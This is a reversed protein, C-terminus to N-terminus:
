ALPIPKCKGHWAVGPIARSQHCPRLLAPGLPREGNSPRASGLVKSRSVLTLAGEDSWCTDWTGWSEKGREFQMANCHVARAHRAVNLPRATKDGLGVIAVILLNRKGYRVTGYWTHTYREVSVPGCDVQATSTSNKSHQPGVQAITTSYCSHAVCAAASHWKNLSVYSGGRPKAGLGHTCPVTHHSGRSETSTCHLHPADDTQRVTPPPCHAILCCPLSFRGPSPPQRAGQTACPLQGLGPLGAEGVLFEEM